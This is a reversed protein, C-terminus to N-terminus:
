WSRPACMLGTPSKEGETLQASLERMLPLKNFGETMKKPFAVEEESSTKVEGYPVTKVTGCHLAPAQERRLYSKAPSKKM